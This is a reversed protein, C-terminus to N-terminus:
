FQLYPHLLAGRADPREDPDIVLLSQIFDLLEADVHPGPMDELEKRWHVRTILKMAPGLPHDAVALEEAREFEKKYPSDTHPHEIPGVLCM